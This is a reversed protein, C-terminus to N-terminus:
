HRGTNDWFSKYVAWKSGEKVVRAKHTQRLKKAIGQAEAKTLSGRRYLRFPEGSFFRFGPDGPRPGLM